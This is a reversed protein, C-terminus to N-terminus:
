RTAVVFLRRFPFPTRGSAAPPYAERLRQRYAVGFREREDDALGDLVPRLGTGRVWELVPDTGELEHVYETEWVDLALAHPALLAHYHRADAVPCRDLLARLAPTGLPREAAGEGALVARMLRHSPLGHSRPMQVALCGGPALEELLRVLLGDHPEVWQISANAYVVDPAREPRWRALDAEVWRIPAPTARAEALMAPSRDVGVLTVGAQAVPLAIRGTGCGLELVPGPQAAALGRWFPVDRRAVTRANEWDYFPAYADWGDAGDAPTKM